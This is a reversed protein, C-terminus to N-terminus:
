QMAQWCPDQRRKNDMRESEKEMESAKEKWRKRKGDREIMGVSEREM